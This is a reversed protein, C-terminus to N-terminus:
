PLGGDKVRTLITGLALFREAWEPLERSILRGSNHIRAIERNLPISMLVPLSHAEAFEVIDRDKGDNKNIVIGAPIEMARVVEAALSLDHLGFPTPETVLVCYESGELTEVLPCSTGPPADAIVLTDGEALEKVARIVAVTQVEGENLSGSILKLGPGPHSVQVAGVPLDVEDIAFAPCALACGGCSHCLDPLVLVRDALVTIAGYRCIEGCRGCLTCEENMIRPVKITVPQEVGFAPFYLHLNPEEVDCDQLTVEKERSLVFALNAAILTKGTGGKGSAVVIRMKGPVEPKYM